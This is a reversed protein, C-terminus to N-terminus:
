QKDPLTSEADTGFGIMKLDKTSRLVHGAYRKTEREMRCAVVGYPAKDNQWIEYMISDQTFKATGRVGLCEFKGLRTNIIREEVEASEKFPVSLLAAIYVFSKQGAFPLDLPKPPETETPTHWARVIHNLPEDGTRLFKEPILFKWVALLDGSPDDDSTSYFIKHSRVEIWRCQEGKETVEGVSSITLFGKTVGGVGNPLDFASDEEYCVWTGDKPLTLVLGGRVSTTPEKPPEQALSTNAVGPLFLVGCALSFVTARQM